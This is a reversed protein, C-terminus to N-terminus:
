KPEPLTHRKCVHPETMGNHQQIQSLAECEAKTKFSGYDTWGGAGMWLYLTWVIM